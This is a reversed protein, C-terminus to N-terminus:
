IKLGHFVINQSFQLVVPDDGYWWHPLAKNNEFLNPVFVYWLPEVRSRTKSLRTM